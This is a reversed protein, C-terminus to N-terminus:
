RVFSREIARIKNVRRGHRGGAFPMSVWADVVALAAREDLTGSGLCLVNAGNHERSNKATRVDHCTAALVGPVKGAAMCSGIGAGDVLIGWSAEGMAIARAVAAAFDPYDCSDKSHTGMDTTRLGQRELHRGIANKLEFGGHDAGLAILGGERPAPGADSATSPTASVPSTAGGGVRIEIGCESAADRALPTILTGPAVRLVTEGRAKAARVDADSVLDAGGARRPAHGGGGGEERLLQRAIDL